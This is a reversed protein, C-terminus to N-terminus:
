KCGRGIRSSNINPGRWPLQPRICHELAEEVDDARVSLAILGLIAPLEGVMGGLSRREPKRNMDRNSITIPARLPEPFLTRAWRQDERQVSLQAQDGNRMLYSAGPLHPPHVFGLTEWRHGETPDVIEAGYEDYDRPEPLAYMVTADYPVAWFRGDDYYISMTSYLDISDAWIPDEPAIRSVHHGDFKFMLGTTRGERRENGEATEPPYWVHSQRVPAAYDDSQRM